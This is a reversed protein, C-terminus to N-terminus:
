LKARAFASLLRAAGSADNEDFTEVPTHLNRIPVSVGAVCVGAGSLQISSADTGIRESIEKQCPIESLAAIKFLLGSLGSQPIVSADYLKVAPGKGLCLGNNSKKSKPDDGACAVDCNVAIDPKIREAAVAAGRCGVEEQVTFVFYLDNKSGKCGKMVDLLLACGLLDDAYPTMVASKSLKEPKGDFVCVDGAGVLKSASEFSRAGIDIYLDDYTLADPSRKVTESLERPRIIGRVGNKFRVKANIVAFPSAGGIKVFNVFGREDVSKAMFGVVDLHACFMIKRGKGKVRCVVNGLVDTYVEDCLPKAESIILKAAASEFGSPSAAAVLKEHLATLDSM